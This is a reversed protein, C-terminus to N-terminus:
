SWGSISLIGSPDSSIANITERCNSFWKETVKGKRMKNGVKEVGVKKKWKVSYKPHNRNWSPVRVGKLNLKMNGFLTLFDPWHSHGIHPEGYKCKLKLKSRYFQFPHNDRMMLFGHGFVLALDSFVRPWCYPAIVHLPVCLDCACVRSTLASHLRVSCWTPSPEGRLSGTWSKLTIELALDWELNSVRPCPAWLSIKAEFNWLHDPM